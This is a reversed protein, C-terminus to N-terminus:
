ATAGETDRFALLRESLLKVRVPPCDNEPLEEALLAPIWYSRFMRGMPTGPGTQTLLDNRNAGSCTGDGARLRRVKARRSVSGSDYAPSAATLWSLVRAAGLEKGLHGIPLLICTASLTPGDVVSHALQVKRGHRGVRRQQPDLHRADAAGIDALVAQRQAAGRQDHPVLVYAIEGADALGERSMLAHLFPIEDKQLVVKGAPVAFPITDALVTM